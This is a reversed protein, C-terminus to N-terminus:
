AGHPKPTKILAAIFLLGFVIDVLGLKMDGSSIRHQLRLVIVTCGWGFKKSCRESSESDMWLGLGRGKILLSAIWGALVGIVIEWL